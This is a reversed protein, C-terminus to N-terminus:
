EPTPCPDIVELGVGQKIIESGFGLDVVLFCAPRQGVVTNGKFM